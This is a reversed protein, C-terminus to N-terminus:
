DLFGDVQRLATNMLETKRSTDGEFSLTVCRDPEAVAFHRLIIMRDTWRQPVAGLTHVVISGCVSCHFSAEGTELSRAVDSNFTAAIRTKTTELDMLM